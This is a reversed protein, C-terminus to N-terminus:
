VKSRYHVYKRTHIHTLAYRKRKEAPTQNALDFLKFNLEDNGAVVPPPKKEVKPAETVKIAPNFLPHSELPKMEVYLHSM